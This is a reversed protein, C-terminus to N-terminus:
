TGDKGGEIDTLCKGDKISVVVTRGEPVLVIEARTVEPCQSLLKILQWVDWEAM